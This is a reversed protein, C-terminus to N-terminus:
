LRAAMCQQGHGAGALKISTDAWGRPQGLTEMQLRAAGQLPQGLVANEKGTSAGAEVAAEGKLGTGAQQGPFGQAQAARHHAFSEILARQVATQTDLQGIVRAQAFAQADVTALEVLEAPM